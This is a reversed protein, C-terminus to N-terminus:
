NPDKMPCHSVLLCILDINSTTLDRVQQQLEHVQNRLSLTEHEVTKKVLQLLENRSSKMEVVVINANLLQISPVLLRMPLCWWKKGDTLNWLMRNQLQQNQLSPYHRNPIEGIVHPPPTGPQWAKPRSTGSTYCVRRASRLKHPSRWALSGPNSELRLCPDRTTLARSFM